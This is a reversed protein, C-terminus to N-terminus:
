KKLAKLQEDKQALIIKQGEPDDKLAKIASVYAEKLEEVTKAAKIGRIFEAYKVGEEFTFGQGDDDEDEIAIGFGLAFTYRRGYTSMSAAAQAPNMMSTGAMKPIDFSVRKTHGYGSILLTFRRDGNERNEEEWSYSFGHRAIVEGNVAQLEELPAYNYMVKGNNMASKTRKVPKFNRQMEAFHRDFEHQAARAEEKNKLELLKELTDMGAKSELAYRILGSTDTPIFAGVPRGEEAAMVEYVPNEQSM